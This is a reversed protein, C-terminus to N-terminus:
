PACPDTNPLGCPGPPNLTGQGILAGWYEFAATRGVHLPNLADWQLAFSNIVDDATFDSGDHFKVGERLACTWVTLDANATCGTSLAPTPDLGTEGGYSYLSEKIQNCVRLTEGDSEDGCYTSLPEKNQMFVLTDRDAPQVTAFNEELPAAYAGKVDAKFATGSGGHAIFIAVVNSKILNNATTYAATRAADDPTQDGQKIAAVLDPIPDGFKKGSGPGFHYDLFNSADPFDAGWGLMFIGDLKGAANNDLFTGSDQKDTTATVGLNVKLQSVIEDAIVPQGSVYSRDADRFQIKPSWTEPTLNEEALGETLLAKAATADFTYWPDGGCADPIACPTFFKAVESGPPYFNDVIQQRDIGMALAQRVKLNDFPKITNNFGLYFTNLGPRQYFKLDKDGEIAPLDAKGPNDIGDVGATTSQLALLRAASQDSWQFELKPTLAKTGWYDDNRALDIRTGTDWSVFKYPGTGNPARLISGDAMHALLYATDDIALSNFAIQSLFAVDPNCFSFEVTKADVAKILKLNGSYPRGNFTGAACDVAGYSADPYATADATMAPPQAIPDPYATPGPTVEPTPEATVAPTVEPTVVPTAAPTVAPPATTAATPVATAAATPAATPAKTPAATPAATPTAAAGNCAAFVLMAVTATSFLSLRRPRRTM